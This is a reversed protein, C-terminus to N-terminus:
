SAGRATQLARTGPTTLQVWHRLYPAQRIAATFYLSIVPISSGVTTNSSVFNIKRRKLRM